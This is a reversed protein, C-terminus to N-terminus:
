SPANSPRPLISSRSRGLGRADEAGETADVVLRPDALLRSPDLVTILDHTIAGIPGSTAAEESTLERAVDDSAIERIGLLKQAAIAVGRGGAEVIVMVTAEAESPRGLLGALDVVSLPEGRFQAVGVFWPPLGPLRAVHAFHVVDRVALVPLAVPEGGVALVLMSRTSGPTELKVETALRSAREALLAELSEITEPRTM